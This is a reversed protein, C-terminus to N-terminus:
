IVYLDIRGGHPYDNAGTDNTLYGRKWEHILFAKNDIQKIGV